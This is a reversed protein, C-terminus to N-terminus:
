LRRRSRSSSHSSRWSRTPMGWRRGREGFTPSLCRPWSIRLPSRLTRWRTSRRSALTVRRRALPRTSRCSQSTCSAPSRQHPCPATWMGRCCRSAIRWTEMSSKSRRSRGPWRLCWRIPMSRSRSMTWGKTRLPTRSRSSCCSTSTAFTNSADSSMNRRPSPSSSLPARGSSEASDRLSRFPTYSLLRISRRRPSRSSPPSSREPPRTRKWWALNRGCNRPRTRWLPSLPSPSSVGWMKGGRAPRTRRSVGRWSISASQCSTSSPWAPQTTQSPSM